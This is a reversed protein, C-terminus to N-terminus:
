ILFSVIRSGFDLIERVDPHVRQGQLKAPLATAEVALCELVVHRLIRVCRRHDSGQNMAM